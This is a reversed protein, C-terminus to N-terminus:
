GGIQNAGQPLAPDYDSPEPALRDILAQVETWGQAELWNHPYPIYRRQEPNAEVAQRLRWAAKLIDRPNAGAGIAKAFARNALYRSGATPPYHDIFLAAQEEVSLGEVVVRQVGGSGEAGGSPEINPETDPQKDPEICGVSRGSVEPPNCGVSRATRGSVEVQCKVGSIDPLLTPHSPPRRWANLDLLIGNAFALGGGGHRRGYRKGHHGGQPAEPRRIFGLRALTALRRTVSRESVNLRHALHANSPWVPILGDDDNLDARNACSALVALLGVLERRLGHRKAIRKAMAQLQGTTSPPKHKSM